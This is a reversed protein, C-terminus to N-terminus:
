CLDNQVNLMFIHWTENSHPRWQGAAFLLCYFFTLYFVEVCFSCQQSCVLILKKKKLSSYITVHLINDVNILVIYEM